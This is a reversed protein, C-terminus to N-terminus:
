KLFLSVSSASDKGNSQFSKRGPLVIDSESFGDGRLQPEGILKRGELWPALKVPLPSNEVAISKVTGGRENKREVRVKVWAPKKGVPVEVEM